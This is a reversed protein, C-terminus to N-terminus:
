AEEAGLAKALNEDEISHEEMWGLAEAQSIAYIDEGGCVSNQGCSSSYRSMAGGEGHIFLAGKKTRYLTEACWHFDSSHEGNSWRALEEATETNYIKGDIVKKM